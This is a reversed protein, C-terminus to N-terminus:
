DFDYKASDHRAKTNMANVLKPKTANAATLIQRKGYIWSGATSVSYLPQYWSIAQDVRVENTMNDLIFNKGDLSVDLIAHGAGNRTDKVVVIRVDSSPVNLALLIWMKALAIAKCDGSGRRAMEEPSAWYDAKGYNDM